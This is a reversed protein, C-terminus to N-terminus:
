DHTDHALLHQQELWHLTKDLLNDIGTIQYDLERKAKSSDCHMHATVMAAGEPTIRPERGTIKSQWDLVTAVTKLLWAPTTRQPAPVELKCAAQQLLALYSAEAGGLLYQEGCRGVRAARVHAKAVEEVDAFAGSGPPVGPLRQAALMIFLRAWNHRDFPGLIHGPCMLVANLGHREVADLVIDRASAKSRIYHIWQASTDPPSTEDFVGSQFGWTAFSSTYVLSAINNAVAADVVHRTGDVNVRQQRQRHGSWVSTDAAAHFICDPKAAMAKYVSDRDTLDGYCIHIDDRPLDRLDSDRRCLVSVRWGQQLLQQVLNAGVFGSAGTVLAHQSL